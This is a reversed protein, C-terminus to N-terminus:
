PLPRPGAATPSLPQRMVGRTRSARAPDLSALHGRSREWDVEPARLVVDSALLERLADMDGANWADFATRMIEVNEQSM